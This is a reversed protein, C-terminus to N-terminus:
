GRNTTGGEDGEEPVGNLFALSTMEMTSKIGQVKRSLLAHLILAPIAVILGFETTVLAESIGSALSKADGTGFINILRFTEIMGTVTGLLGLLPATASAIAILPLGRNLKPVAELFKEYLAEELDDRPTDAKASLIDVGRMLINKAPHRIDATASRAAEYDGRGLADIVTQVVAPRLDRIKMLQLWKRCAAFLAVAALILIPFIWFGGQKIHDIISGSSSTLAVAMGMTPDFTVLAPKGKLLLVINATDATGVVIRPRLEKDASILGSVDGSESLFWSIPGVEAFRGAVLVGEENLAEGAIVSVQGAARLQEISIKVLALRSQLDRGKLLDGQTEIRALSQSSQYSKRFDLLLGEIYQREERWSKLESDTKAFEAEVADRRSRALDAQRRAERLDAALLNSKKALAPKKEAIRQQVKALEDLAIRLDKQVSDAAETYAERAKGNVAGASQAVGGEQAFLLGSSALLTLIYGTLKMM